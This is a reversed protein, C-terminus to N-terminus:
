YWSHNNTEATRTKGAAVMDSKPCGCCCVELMKPPPVVWGAVVDMKPCGLVDWCAGDSKPPAAFVFVFAFLV